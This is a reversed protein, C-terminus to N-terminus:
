TKLSSGDLRRGRREGECGGPLIVLIATSERTVYTVEPDSKSGREAPIRVEPLPEGM